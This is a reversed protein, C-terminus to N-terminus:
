GGPRSQERRSRRTRRRRIADEIHARGYTREASYLNHARCLIRINAAGGHGGRARPQIHDDELWARASCQVGDDGRFSCRLGDRELVQRRTTRSVDPSSGAPPPATDSRKAAAPENPPEDHKGPARKTGTGFRRKMLREVLLDLARGVITSLDGSPLAHRMLDRALELKNKLAADATFQIRFRGQALPEILRRTTTDRSTARPMAPRNVHSVTRTNPSSSSTEVRDTEPSKPASLTPAPLTPKTSPVSDVFGPLPAANNAPQDRQPEPLKRITAAVDPRPFRAALLERARQVSSGSVLRTLEEVNDPSLHPKLLSAVSLSVRGEALLPFLMPFRRALRAVEIRRYAEDESLSLRAVCYAFMSGYGAALHLRREEVEGLHALLAALVRRSSGVLESLGNLLAGDSSRELKWFLDVQQM